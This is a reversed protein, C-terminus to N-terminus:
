QLFTYKRSISDTQQREVKCAIDNTIKLSVPHLSKPLTSFSSSFMICKLSNGAASKEEQYAISM